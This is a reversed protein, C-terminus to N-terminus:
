GKNKSTLLGNHGMHENFHLSMLVNYTVQREWPIRSMRGPCHGSGRTVRMRSHTCSFMRTNWSLHTSVAYAHAWPM